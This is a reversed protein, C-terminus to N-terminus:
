IDINSLKGAKAPENETKIFTKKIWAVAAKILGFIVYLMLMLFLYNKDLLLKSFVLVLLAIFIVIFKYPHSKLQLKSLKPMTDYKVHSVM